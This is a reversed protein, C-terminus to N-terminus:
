HRWRLAGAIQEDTANAFHAVEDRRLALLSDTLPQGLAKALTSNEALCDTAEALSIPLRKINLDNLQDASLSAPDVELPDPLVAARAVGDIGAALLGALLLYPNALLDFCKLEINAAWPNSGASGTIMRMAAERNELGWCGFAGAWHGPILRLYSVVSPAGIALLAPLHEFIGAGFSEGAAQLGYTGPGSALLNQDERWLSLHVHGGNGVGPVAVKPSFSTRLGHALGVARITHRILMTTDAASVPDEAAVAVEMQGSAYEPHIQEIDIGQEVLAALIERMYDSHEILRTMGYASGSSPAVFDDSGAESIVWEVEIASRVTLGQAALIGMQRRLLERSCQDHPEGLQNFRSAPAWAWGPQARLVVLKELDPILRLDGIATKGDDTGVIQDDFRWRDCSKSSGVGWSALQPLRALPVSKVRSIGSNDVFSTAVGVVGEARLARIMSTAASAAAERDALQM